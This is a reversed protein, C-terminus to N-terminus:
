LSTALVKSFIKYDRCLLPVPRWNKMNRLDGKKPLLTIVVRRCSLPLLGRQLSDTVVELFDEGMVSWSAKYFEVPLGDMGPTKGSQFSMLATYFEHLTPQAEWKQNAEAAVQPLGKVFRNCLRPNESFDSKFLDKYYGVTLKRIGSPFFHSPADM